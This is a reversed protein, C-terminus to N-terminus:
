LISDHISSKKPREFLGDREKSSNGLVSSSPAEEHQSLFQGVKANLEQQAHWEKETVMYVKGVPTKQNASNSTQSTSQEYLGVQGNGLDATVSHNSDTHQSAATKKKLDAMEAKMAEMEAKMRMMEAFQDQTITAAAPSSKEPANSVVSAHSKVVSKSEYDEGLIVPLLVAVCAEVSLCEVRPNDKMFTLIKQTDLLARKRELTPAKGSYVRDMLGACQASLTKLSSADESDLGASLKDRQALTLRRALTAALRPLEHLDAWGSINRMRQQTRISDLGGVIFSAFGLFPAAPPCIAGAAKTIGNLAAVANSASANVVGSSIVKAALATESLLTKMAQYYQNLADDGHIADIEDQTQQDLGADKEVRDLRQSLNQQNNKFANLTPLMKDLDVEELSKLTRISDASLDGLLALQQQLKANDVVPAPKAVAQPAPTSVAPKATAPPTAPKAV